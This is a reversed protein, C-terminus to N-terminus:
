YVDLDANDLDEGKRQLKGVERDGVGRNRESIDPRDESSRIKKGKTQKKTFKKKKTTKTKM